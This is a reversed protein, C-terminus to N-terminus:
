QCRWAMRANGRRYHSCVVDDFVDNRDCAQLLVNPLRVVEDLRSAVHDKFLEAAKEYVIQPVQYEIANGELTKMVGSRTKDRGAPVNGFFIGDFVIGALTSPHIRILM